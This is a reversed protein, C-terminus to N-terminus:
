IETHTNEAGGAACAKVTTTVLKIDATASNEARATSRQSPEGVPPVFVRTSALPAAATDAHRCRRRRRRCCCYDYPFPSPSSSFARVLLRRAPQSMQKEEQAPRGAPTCVCVCVCMSHHDSPPVRTPSIPNAPQSARQSALTHSTSISQNTCRHAQRGKPLSPSSRRRSRRAAASCTGRRRVYVNLNLAKRRGRGAAGPQVATGLRSLFANDNTLLIPCILALGCTVFLCVFSNRRGGPGM